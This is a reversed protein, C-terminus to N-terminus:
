NILKSWETKIPFNCVEARGQGVTKGIFVESLFLILGIDLWRSWFLMIILLRNIVHSLQKDQMLHANDQAPLVAGGQETCSKCIRSM